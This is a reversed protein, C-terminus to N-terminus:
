RCHRTLVCCSHTFASLSSIHTEFRYIAVGLGGVANDSFIAQRPIRWGLPVNVTPAIRGDLAETMVDADIAALRDEELDFGIRSVIPYVDISHPIVAPHPCTANVGDLWRDFEGLM